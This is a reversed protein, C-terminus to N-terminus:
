SDLIIQSDPRKIQNNSEKIKIQYKSTVNRYYKIRDYM